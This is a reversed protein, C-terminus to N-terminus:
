RGGGEGHDWGRTAREAAAAQERRQDSLRLAQKQQKQRKRERRRSLWGGESQREKAM